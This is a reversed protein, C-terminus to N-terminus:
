DFYLKVYDTSFDTVTVVKNLSPLACVLPWPRRGPRITMVVIRYKFENVFRKLKLM